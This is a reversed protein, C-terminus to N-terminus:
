CGEAKIVARENNPQGYRGVSRGELRKLSNSLSRKSMTKVLSCIPPVTFVVNTVGIRAPPIQSTKSGGTNWFGPHIYNLRHSSLSQADCLNNMKPYKQRV